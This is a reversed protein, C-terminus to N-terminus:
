CCSSPPACPYPCPLSPPPSPVKRVKIRQAMTWPVAGKYQGQANLYFLRPKNTLILTRKKYSLGKRKWVKSHLVVFEGNDSQIHFLFREELVGMAPVTRALKDRLLLAADGVTVLAVEADEAEENTDASRSKSVLAPQKCSEDSTRYDTEAITNLRKEHVISIMRRDLVPGGTEFLRLPRLCALQHFNPQDGPLPYCSLYAREEGVGYAACANVSWTVSLDVGCEPEPMFHAPIALEVAWRGAERDISFKPAVDLDLTPDQNKWDAEKMFFVLMYHGHPGLQIELYPSNADSRFNSLFIEVVEHEYLSELRGKPAFPAPDDHFPADLYVLVDGSEASIRFKVFYPSLNSPQGDWYKSFSLTAESM